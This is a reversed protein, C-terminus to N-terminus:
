SEDVSHEHQHEVVADWLTPPQALPSRCVLALEGPRALLAVEISRQAVWAGFPSDRGAELLAAMLESAVGLGPAQHWLAREVASWRLVGRGGPGSGRDAAALEAATWAALERWRLAGAPGRRRLGAARLRAVLERSGVPHAGAALAALRTPEDVDYHDGQFAVRRLGIAAAFAHLEALSTDSVLHAWLRDRWPWRAPDVLIM